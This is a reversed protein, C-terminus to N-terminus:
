GYSQAQITLAPNQTNLWQSITQGPALEFNITDTDPDDEIDSLEAANTYVLEIDASALQIGGVGYTGKGKNMMKYKVVRAPLPSSIPVLERGIFWVSQKENVTYSAFGNIIDRIQTHTYTPEYFFTKKIDINDQNFLAKRKIKYSSGAPNQSADAPEVIHLLAEDTASTKETLDTLKKNAM